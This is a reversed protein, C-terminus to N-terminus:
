CGNLRQWQDWTAVPCLGQLTAMTMVTAKVKADEEVPTALIGKLRRIAGRAESPQLVIDLPDVSSLDELATWLADQGGAQAAASLALLSARNLLAHNM